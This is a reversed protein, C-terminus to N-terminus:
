WRVNATDAESYLDEFHGKRATIIFIFLGIVILGVSVIQAVKFGGFMLSDTRSAEIFFRGVSYWILYLATLQGTKLYKIKRRESWNGSESLFNSSVNNEEGNDAVKLSKPISFPITEYEDDSIKKVM